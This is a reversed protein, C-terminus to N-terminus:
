QNMFHDPLAILHMGNKEKLAPQLQRGADISTM